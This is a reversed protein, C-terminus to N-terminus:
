AALRTDNAAIGAAARTGRGGGAIAAPDRAFRGSDQAAELVANPNRLVIELVVTVLGGLAAALAILAFTNVAEREPDPCIRWRM